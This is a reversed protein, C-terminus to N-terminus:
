IEFQRIMEIQFNNIMHQVDNSFNTFKKDVLEKVHEREDVSMPIAQQRQSQQLDISFAPINTPKIQKKPSEEKKTEVLLSHHKKTTESKM